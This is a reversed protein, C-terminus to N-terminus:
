ELVNRLQRKPARGRTGDYIADSITARVPTYASYDTDERNAPLRSQYQGLVLSSGSISQLSRCRDQIVALTCVARRFQYLTM